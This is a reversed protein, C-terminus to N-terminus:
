KKVRKAAEFKKARFAESMYISLEGLSVNSDSYSDQLLSKNILAALKTIIGRLEKRSKKEFAIIKM